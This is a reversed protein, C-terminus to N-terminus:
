VIFVKRINTIEERCSPCKTMKSFSVCKECAWIHGCPDFVIDKRNNQCFGCLTTCELENVLKEKEEEAAKLRKATLEKEFKLDKLKRKVVRESQEKNKFREELDHLLKKHRRIEFDKESLEVEYSILADVGIDNEEEVPFSVDTHAKFDINFLDECKKEEQYRADGLQVIKSIQRACAKEKLLDNYKKELKSYNLKWKQNIKKLQQIKLKQKKYLSVSQHKRIKKVLSLIKLKLMHVQKRLIAKCDEASEPNQKSITKISQKREKNLRKTRRIINLDKGQPLKMNKELKESLQSRKLQTKRRHTNVRENEADSSSSTSDNSLDIFHPM